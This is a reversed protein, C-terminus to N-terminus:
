IKANCEECIGEYLIDIKSIEVSYKREVEKLKQENDNEYIDIIKGCKRCVFHNHPIKKGDYHNLDEMHYLKNIKGEEVLKNINRYITAQGITPYKTKVKTVIEKITPHDECSEVIKLIQEKQKTNREKM